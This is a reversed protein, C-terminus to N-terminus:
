FKDILIAIQVFPLYLFSGFMVAKAHSQNSSKLLLISPWLFFFTFVLLLIFTFLSIYDFHWLAWVIPFLTLTYVLMQWATRNGPISESPLLKFGAKSYDDHLLWAIAWFHPFQWIFQILFFLIGEFTISGVVATHGILVPLAGPFAGVFVAVPSVKKMPTYVFAYSILAAFGLLASISNLFVGLVLVGLLGSLIAVILAEMIGMRGTAVPRNATRQMLLDSDKEIIQNLGNSSGVILFGGACLLLLNKYDIASGSATAFGAAASFVVLSALRLKFFQGYDALKQGVNLRTSTITINNM